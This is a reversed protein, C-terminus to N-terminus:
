AVESFRMEDLIAPVDAGVPWGCPCLWRNRELMWAVDPLVHCEAAHDLYTPAGIAVVFVADVEEAKSGTIFLYNLRKVKEPSSRLPLFM